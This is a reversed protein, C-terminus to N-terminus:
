NEHRGGSPCFDGVIFLPLLSLATKEKGKLRSRIRPKNLIPPAPFLFLKGVETFIFEERVSYHSPPMPERGKNIQARNMTERESNQIAV